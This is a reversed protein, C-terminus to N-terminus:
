FIDYIWTNLMSVMMPLYWFPRDAEREGGDGSDGPENRNSLGEWHSFFVTQQINSPRPLKTSKRRLNKIIVASRRMMVDPM